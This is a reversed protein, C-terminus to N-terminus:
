NKKLKDLEWQIVQKANNSAAKKMEDLLGRSTKLDKLFFKSIEFLRQNCAAYCPHEVGISHKQLTKSVVEKLMRNHKQSRSEKQELELHSSPKSQAPVSPATRVRTSSPQAGSVSSATRETRLRTPQQHGSGESALSVLSDSSGSKALRKSPYLGEIDKSRRKLRLPDGRLETQISEGDPVSGPESLVAPSPIPSLAFPIPCCERTCTTQTEYRILRSQLESFAVDRDLAKRNDLCYELGHYHCEAAKEFPLGKLKRPTLKPTVLFANDGRQVQLPQLEGVALGQPTFYKLLEKADLLTMGEKLGDKRGLLQEASGSLISARLRQKIKEFNELNQLVNREPWDAPNSIMAESEPFAPTSVTINQMNKYSVSDLRSECDGIVHERTLALLRGLNNSQSVSAHPQAEQRKLYEKVALVQARALIQERLAIQEGNFHPLSDLIDSTSEAMNVPHNNNLRQHLLLLSAAGSIQSASHLLTAKCLGSGKGQILFYYSCYEGKLEVGPVKIDKPKRSMYERWKKSSRQLAPPNPLSCVNCPLMFIAGVKETLSCLQDLMLKSKGQLGNRTISLEFVSDSVFYSPIESLAVMQVYELSAGYYHFVESLVTKNKDDGNNEFYPVKDDSVSRLCFEPFEVESTFKREKIEITGRWLEQPDILQRPCDSVVVNASLFKGIKQWGKCDKSVITIKATHWEKLHKIAGIASLCDKLKPAESPFLLVDVLARGPAPLKDSLQHLLEAAEEFLNTQSISDRSNDDEGDPFQLADLCEDLATQVPEESDDTTVAPCLDEWDSSCFQSFGYLSQLAFFWKRIGPNGTLSCAPFTSTCNTSYEKLQTYIDQAYVLGQPVPQQQEARREWHICLVFREM